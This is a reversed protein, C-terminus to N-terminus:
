VPKHRLFTKYSEVIDSIGRGVGNTQLSRQDQLYLQQWLEVIYHLKDKTLLDTMVNEDVEMGKVDM